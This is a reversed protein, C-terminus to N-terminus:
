KNNYKTSILTPNMQTKTCDIHAYGIFFLFLFLVGLAKNLSFEFLKINFYALVVVPNFYCVMKM